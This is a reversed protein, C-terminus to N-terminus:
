GLPLYTTGYVPLTRLNVCTAVTAARGPNPQPHAAEVRSKLLRIKALPFFMAMIGFWATAIKPIIEM